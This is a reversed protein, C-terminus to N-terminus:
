RGLYKGAYEVSLRDMKFCLDLSGAGGIIRVVRHARHMRLNDAASLRLGDDEKM